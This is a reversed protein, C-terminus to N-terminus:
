TKCLPCLNGWQTNACEISCFQHGCPELIAHNQDKHFDSMCIPCFLDSNNAQKISNDNSFFKDQDFILVKCPGQLYALPCFAVGLTMEDVLSFKGLLQPKSDAMM